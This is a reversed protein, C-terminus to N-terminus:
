QQAINGDVIMLCSSMPLSFLLRALNFTCFISPYRIAPFVHAALIESRRSCKPPLNPSRIRLRSVAGRIPQHQIKCRIILSLSLRLASGFSVYACICVAMAQRRGSESGLFSQQTTPSERCRKKSFSYCPVSRCDSSTTVDSTTCGADQWPLTLTGEARCTM